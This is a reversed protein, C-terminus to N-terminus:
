NICINTKAVAVIDQLCQALVKKFPEQMALITLRTYFDVITSTM